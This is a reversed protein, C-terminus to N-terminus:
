RRSTNRSLTTIADLQQRFLGPDDRDRAGGLQMAQLLIDARGIDRERGVIEARNGGRERRHRYLAVAIRRM